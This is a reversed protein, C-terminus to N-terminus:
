RDFNEFDIEYNGISRIRCIYVTKSLLWPNQTNLIKKNIEKHKDRCTEHIVEEKLPSWVDDSSSRMFGAAVLIVHANTSM